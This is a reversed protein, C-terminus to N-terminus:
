EVSIRKSIKGDAFQVEIFYLGKNVGSMDIQTTGPALQGSLVIKGAISYVNYDASSKGPMNVNLVNQVPNPFMEIENVVQEKSIGTPPNLTICGSTSDVNDYEFVIPGNQFPECVTITTSTGNDTVTVGASDTTVSNGDGEVIVTSGSKAYLTHNDGSLTVTSNTELYIICNDGTFTVDRGECIWLADGTQLWDNDNTKEIVTSPLTHTCSQAVLAVSIISGFFALLLKKM